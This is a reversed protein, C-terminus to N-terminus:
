CTQLYLMSVPVYWSECFLHTIKLVILAAAWLWLHRQEVSETGKRELLKLLQFLCFQPGVLLFSEVGTLAWQVIFSARHDAIVLRWLPTSSSRHFRAHLHGTRM